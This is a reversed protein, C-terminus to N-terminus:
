WSVVVEAEAKIFAYDKGDSPLVVIVLEYHMKKIIDFARNIRKLKNDTGM